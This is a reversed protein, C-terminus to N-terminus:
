STLTITNCLPPSLVKQAPALKLSNTFIESSFEPFVNKEPNAFDTQEPDILTKIKNMALTGDKIASKAKTGDKTLAAAEQATVKSKDIKDGEVTTLVGKDDTNDSLTKVVPDDIDSPAEKAEIEVPAEEDTAEEAPAEEAEKEEAPAEEAEKEEAPAEEKEVTVAPVGISASIKGGDTLGALALQAKREKISLGGTM